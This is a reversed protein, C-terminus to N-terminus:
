WSEVIKRIEPSYYNLFQPQFNGKNILDNYKCPFLETGLIVDEDDGYKVQRSSTNVESQWPNEGPALYKRLFSRRWISIQTSMTYPTNKHQRFLKINETEDYFDAGFKVVQQHMDIKGVESNNIMYKELIKVVDLNVSTYWADGYTLTFIDNELIDLAKILANSFSYDIQKGVCLYSFNKPIDSLINEHGIVIVEYESGWHENFCISFPKLLNIHQNCTIVYSIM